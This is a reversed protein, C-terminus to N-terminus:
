SPYVAAFDVDSLQDPLDCRPTFSALPAYDIPVTVAGRDDAFTVRVELGGPPPGCWNGWGIDMSVGDPEQAPLVPPLNSEADPGAEYRLPLAAVHPEVTEM